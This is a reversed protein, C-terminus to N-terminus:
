TTTMLSRFEREDMYSSHPDLSALMGDIAGRILREDTVEEVYESRVREFVNMFQDIGKYTNADVQAMGATAAPVLAIATVLGLSRLLNSAMPNRVRVLPPRPAEVAM